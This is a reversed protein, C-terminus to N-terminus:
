CVPQGMRGTEFFCGIDCRTMKDEISRRSDFVFALRPCLTVSPYQSLDAMCVHTKRNCKFM